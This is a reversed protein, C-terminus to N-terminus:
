IVGNKYFIMAAKYIVEKKIIYLTPKEIYLKKCIYEFLTSNKPCRNRYDDRKYYYNEIFYMHDTGNFFKGLEILGMKTNEDTINKYNYLIKEVRKYIDNTLLKM